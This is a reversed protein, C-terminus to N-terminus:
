HNQTGCDQPGAPPKPMSIPLVETVGAMPTFVANPQSTALDAPNVRSLDTVTVHQVMDSDPNKVSRVALDQHQKSCLLGQLSAFLFQDRAAPTSNMNDERATITVGASHNDDAFLDKKGFSNGSCLLYAYICFSISFATIIGMIVSLIIFPLIFSM